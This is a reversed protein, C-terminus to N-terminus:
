MARPCVIRVMSHRAVSKRIDARGIRKRVNKAAFGLRSAGVAYYSSKLRPPIAGCEECKKERPPPSRTRIIDLYSSILNESQANYEVMFMRELSEEFADRMYEMESEDSVWNREIAWKIKEEKSLQKFSKEYAGTKKRALNLAREEREVLMEVDEMTAFPVDWLRLHHLHYAARVSLDTLKPAYLIELSETCESRYLTLSTCSPLVCFNKGALFRFKYTYIIELKPCRSISLGFANEKGCLNSHEANFSRLEPLSLDLIIDSLNSLDISKLKPMNESTLHLIDVEVCVLTLTELHPFVIDETFSLRDKSSAYETQITLETIKGGHEALDKLHGQCIPSDAAAHGDKVVFVETYNKNKVERKPSEKNGENDCCFCVSSDCSGEDDEEAGSGFVFVDDGDATPAQAASDTGSDM